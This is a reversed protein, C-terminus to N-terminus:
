FPGSHEAAYARGVNADVILLPMSVDGTIRLFAEIAILTVLLSAFAISLKKFISRLMAYLSLAGGTGVESSNRAIQYAASKRAGPRIRLLCITM